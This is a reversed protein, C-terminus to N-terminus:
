LIHSQNNNKSIGSKMFGLFEKAFAIVSFSIAILAIILLIIAINKNKMEEGGILFLELKWKIM